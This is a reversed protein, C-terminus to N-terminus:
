EVLKSANETCMLKQIEEVAMSIGYATMKRVELLKERARHRLPLLRIEDTLRICETTNEPSMFDLVVNVCSKLKRIQYPCGAPIMIAEGTCQEFTWPQVDFEEKLKMKHYADLFFSQDLLPHVVHSTYCYASSFENSHRRLYELLKPVDQRRFIDWQAGCTNTTEKECSSSSSERDRFFSEDDSDESGQINGSCLMSAESDFESEDESGLSMTGNESCSIQGESKGSYFPMKAIGNPLSIRERSMDLLGSEESEESRLSLKGKVETSNSSSQFHFQHCNKRSSQMHDRDKYKKMLAKINKFQEKTIPVDTAYALINVVDNSNFCLKTLSDAHMFEAPGGCSIHICPGIEPQATEQPLKLAVNLLGSIPNVYEQLPLAHLIEAYHSPFQEQFLHSSLWAKIKLTQHPVNLLTEEAMSGMFIQKASTEVECWDSCTTGQVAEKKNHSNSITKELYTCFMVVPDWNLVSTRQIVNRVIVPHGKTWHQQFHRLKERNLDSLTPSYIFNDNSQVRKALEQLQKVDVVKDETGMCLSSCYCMDSTEPFDYSQLVREAGAELEKMWSLPFICGLDLNREGCGGFDVPPCFISGDSCAELSQLSMPFLIPMKGSSRCSTSCQNIKLRLEDASLCNERSNCVKSRFKEYLNGRCFEWCCSLCLNYSCKPCSRHYDMISTKCNNCCHLKNYGSGSQQIQVESPSKGTIMAEIELEMSQDQNMQKLVPLLLSILYHLLKIKDIKMEDTNFEKHSIDKSQHKQCIRCDCTGSCVPCAAKIEKKELYREKICDWCFFQKRCKLCKILNCRISRCWHCKKVRRLNNAPPVVQMTSVPIPEINKSRFSRQANLELGSNEGIKVDVGEHDGGANDLNKQLIAMEGHPLERTLEAEGGSGENEEGNRRKLRKKKVQRKLFEKILELHLDGRKLKMRRLAEDLVESVCRKKQQKKKKLAAAAMKAIRRSSSRSSCARIKEGDDKCIKKSKRELKLSEPVKQKLQRRRGQLYHIHCLKRGDEVRRTCRWQRGDTRRCRFEDPPIEEKKAM